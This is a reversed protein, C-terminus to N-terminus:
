CKYVVPKMATGALKDVRRMQEIHVSINNLKKLAVDFAESTELGKYACTKHVGQMDPNASTVSYFMKMPSVFKWGTSSDMEWELKLQGPDPGFYDKSECDFFIYALPCQFAEQFTDTSLAFVLNDVNSYLLRFSTPRVYNQLFQLAQNLRLKGYEVIGVFLVFPLASAYKKATPKKATKVIVIDFGNCIENIPEIEHVFLNIRRPLKHTVRAVTKHTKDSNLGFYGCAYNIISKVIGSKSKIHASAQRLELLHKFVQPLIPCRKYFVIWEVNEVRFDFENKLYAYYDSTLLMRGQSTTPNFRDNTFIPGLRNPVKECKGSVIAFFTYDELKVCDLSRDLKDMDSVLEKLEPITKFADNLQNKTFNKTCCDRIVAYNIQSRPPRFSNVHVMWNVIHNDREETKAECEERTKGDVYSDLHTKCEPDSHHGHVYHGDFQVLQVSQDKFIVVLDIPFKGVCFTGLPSYNSYVSHIPKLQMMKYIAFMTGMYEFSVHRNGTRGYEPTFSVGFGKASAMSAGSFGYSSTLDYEKISSAPEMGEALPEGQFVKDMCSYSFGGKCFPRLIYETHPHMQELAHCLPGATERMRNWVITFAMQSVSFHLSSSVDCNFSTLYYIEFSEWLDRILKTNRLGRNKLYTLMATGNVKPQHKMTVASHKIIPSPWELSSDELSHWQQGLEWLVADDKKHDFTSMKYNFYNSLNIFVFIPNILATLSYNAMTKLSVGRGYKKETKKGGWGALPGKLAHLSTDDDCFTFIKHKNIIMQLQKYCKEYPNAFRSNVYNKLKSMLPYLINIKEREM